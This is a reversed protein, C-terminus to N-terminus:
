WTLDAAKVPWSNIRISAIRGDKVRVVRNAMKAIEVNHTVMVVTTLKKAILSEILMLVEKGTSFDLAATPEDALIMRPNKVIARAISVRQQQGGSMMSPYNNARDTLGVMDIAEVPNGPNKCIEAIFRVNEVATLNPMLNYSQFIFGIYDRRFDVLEKETPHSFDKGDITVSGDTLSDMGGIINLLTTKGCGSEGLIVLLENEYIDLDVGKLIHAVEMGSPYDKTIGRLSMIAKKDTDPAYSYGKEDLAMALLGAFSKILWKQEDTVERFARDIIEICGIIEKRLIMPMCYVNKMEIGTIEDKGGPFREDGSVDPLDLPEPKECASGIIGRGYEIAFGAINNEGVSIISFIQGTGENKIWIAGYKAAMTGLLNELADSLGSEINDDELMTMLKWLSAVNYGNDMAM